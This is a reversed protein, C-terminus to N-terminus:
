TKQIISIASNCDLSKGYKAADSAVRQAFSESSGSNSGYLVYLPQLGAAGPAVTASPARRGESAEQHLRASPLAFLRPANKRPLAHILFNHPKITLTQKLELEYSPDVM